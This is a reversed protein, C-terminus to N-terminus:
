FHDSSLPGERHEQVLVERGEAVLGPHGEVRVEVRLEEEGKHDEKSHPVLVLEETSWLSKMM